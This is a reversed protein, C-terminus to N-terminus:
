KQMVRLKFENNNLKEYISYANDYMIKNIEDENFYEKLEKKIENNINSYDFINSYKYLENGYSFEMNDSSLVINNVSGVLDKVHLIHCIYLKKLCDMYQDYLSTNMLAMKKSMSKNLTFNCHEIIGIKGDVNVLAKIQEDTLNRQVDNIFKTNSHSAYVVAFIGNKRYDEIIGIIDFFTKENAHSLDIGINLEIAKKILKEGDKTLGIDSRNGSGYKNKNNWVPLIANLGLEKLKELDEIELYDCGEISTLVLIDDPIYKKLLYMCKEFMEVVSINKDYYNIHYEKEMEDESMFSLNAILGKVNNKNYNKIWKEIYTFDNEKYCMYLKTLLDYHMDFM